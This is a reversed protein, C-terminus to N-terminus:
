PAEGLAARLAAVYGAYAAARDEAEAREGVCVKRAQYVDEGTRTKDLYYYGPGAWRVAGAMDRGVTRGLWLRLAVADDAFAVGLVREAPGGPYLVRVDHTHDAPRPCHPCRPGEYVWVWTGDAQRQAALKM